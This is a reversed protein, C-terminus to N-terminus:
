IEISGAPQEPYGSDGLTNKDETQLSFMQGMSKMLEKDENM